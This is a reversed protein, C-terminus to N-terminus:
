ASCSRASLCSTAPRLMGRPDAVKKYRQGDFFRMSEADPATAFLSYNNPPDLKLYQDM